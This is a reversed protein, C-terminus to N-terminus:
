SVDLLFKWLFRSRDIWLKFSQGPLFRVINFLFQLVLFTFLALTPLSESGFQILCYPDAVRNYRKPIHQFSQGLHTEAHPNVRRRVLFAYLYNPPPDPSVLTAHHYTHTLSSRPASSPLDLGRLSPRDAEGFRHHRALSHSRLAPATNHSAIVHVHWRREDHATRRSGNAPECDRRFRCASSLGDIVGAVRRRLNAPDFGSTVGLRTLHCYICLLLPVNCLHFSAGFRVAYIFYYAYVTCM